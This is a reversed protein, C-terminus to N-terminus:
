RIPSPRCRLRSRVITQVGTGPIQFTITDPGPTNNAQVIAQRFSGTGSDNVNNVIFTAAPVSTIAAALLLAVFGIRFRAFTRCRVPAFFAFSGTRSFKMLTPKPGNSHQHRIKHFFLAAVCSLLRATEFM